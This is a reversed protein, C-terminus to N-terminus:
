VPKAPTLQPSKKEPLGYLFTATLVGCTGLFFFSFYLFVLFM